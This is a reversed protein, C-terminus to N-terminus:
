NNEQILDDVEELVANSVESLHESLELATYSKAHGNCIFTFVPMGTEKDLPYLFMFTNAGAKFIEGTEMDGMYMYNNEWSIRTGSEKIIDAASRIIVESTKAFYYNVLKPMIFTAFYRKVGEESYFKVDEDIDLNYAAINCSGDDVGNKVIVRLLCKSKKDFLDMYNEDTLRYSKVEKLWDIGKFADLLIDTVKPLTMANEM